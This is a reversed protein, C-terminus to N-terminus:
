AGPPLLFKSLYGLIGGAVAGYVTSRGAAYSQKNEVKSVREALQDHEEERADLAGKMGNVTGEINGLSRQIAQLAGHIHTLDDSM